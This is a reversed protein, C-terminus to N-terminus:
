KKVPTAYLDIGGNNSLIMSMKQHHLELDLGVPYEQPNDFRTVGPPLQSLQKKARMQIEKLSPQSGVIKGNRIAPLLLNSSTNDKFVTQKTAVDPHVMINGCQYNLEDYIMDGIFQDNKDVYRKTNLIGPNSTKISQDSLKIKPIWHEDKYKGGMKYVGGLAPQNYSTLMKTGVIWSAITCGQAKLSSILHEDLDNSGGVKMNTLGAADLMKRGEKSLYALDGSDLRIGMPEYGKEKLQKSIRIANEIGSISGYTDVLFVCNNPLARSYTEFAELEDEFFMIFAHQMTGGVNIGFIKGALANSTGSVGGIYCARTASLAGDIGQARRLGGDLVPDGNAANVIRSAITAFLSQSNITCLAFSEILLCQVIPGISRLMPEHPFVVTGEPVADVDCTFRFSELYKIFDEDPFLPKGDNGKRSALYDIDSSDFRFESIWDQVYELGACITYGGSFPTNRHFLHFCTQTDHLKAKWFAYAATFQYLDAVLSLSTEGYIKRLIAM